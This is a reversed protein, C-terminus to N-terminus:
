FARDPHGAVRLLHGAHQLGHLVLDDHQHHRRLVANGSLLDVHIGLFSLASTIPSISPPYLFSWMIAAIVGPLAYPLFYVLRFTRKFRTVASDLLLALLLALGLMLPVQMAGILVVRLLAATFDGDQLATLYNSIGAFTTKAAGLGLGSREVKFLSQYLAYGIPALMLAVFLLGFPTLFLWASRSYRSAGSRRPRGTTVAVTQQPELPVSTTTMAAGEKCETSPRMLQLREAGSGEHRQRHQRCRPSPKPITGQGSGVKKLGDKIAPQVQTMTPGWVWGPAINAAAEKFIPYINQGGFYESPQNVAPLEQGSIAAPYIGTNQILSTVIDNNTSMALAAATAEKPNKCGKLVATASGGRNGSGESRRDM